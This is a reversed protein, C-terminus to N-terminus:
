LQYIKGILVSNLPMTTTDDFEAKGPDSSSQRHDSYKWVRQFQVYLWNSWTPYQGSLLDQLLNHSKCIDNYM